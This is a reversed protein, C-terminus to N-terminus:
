GHKNHQMADHILGGPKAKLQEQDLNLDATWNCTSCVLTASSSCSSHKHDEQALYINDDGVLKGVDTILETTHIFRLVVNNQGCNGCAVMEPIAGGSSRAVENQYENYIADLWDPITDPRVEDKTMWKMVQGYQDTDLQILKVRSVWGTYGEPNEEDTFKVCVYSNLLRDEWDPFEDAHQAPDLLEVLTVSQDIEAATGPLIAFDGPGMSYQTSTPRLDDTIMAERVTTNAALMLGMLPNFGHQHDDDM